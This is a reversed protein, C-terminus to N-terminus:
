LQVKPAIILPSKHACKFMIFETNQYIQINFFFIINLQSQPFNIQHSKTFTCKAASLVSTM